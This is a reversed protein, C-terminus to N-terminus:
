KLLIMKRSQVFVQGSHLSPDGVSIRYFYIGSALNQADFKFEHTGASMESNVVTSIVRGLMDYVVLKVSSTKPLAFKIITTPNFPNPYNQYLSYSSPIESKTENIGTIGYAALQTKVNAQRLTIFSKIGPIRQVGGPQGGGPQDGGPQGGGSITLDSNINSDFQEITYQKQTDQVVYPRIITVISDIHTFFNSPIFYKNFVDGVTKLYSTKLTSNNFIKGILPRSATGATYILSLTEMTINNINTSSYAGFSMNTDWIIWEMKGTSENFYVYFNRGSDTYSDLSAFLIDTGIGKYVSTLNVKSPLTNVIDTSNNLLDIVSIIDTWPNASDDTKLEYHSTYNSQASGYYVFDSYVQSIQQGPTTNGADGPFADVAKYLNGDKNNYHNSLFKKDVPEVTTYLGWATDNISVFAYNARPAPIGADRCFDLHLKERLFSPDSFGNNIFLGKLGDYKQDDKYQNFDIKMSKKKGPISYSSNGKLRVGCSDLVTGNIIVKAVMYQENGQSYYTTLSDWYHPQKFYLKITHVKIGSFVTNGTTQAFTNGILLVIIAIILNKKSNM